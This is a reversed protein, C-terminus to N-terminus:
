EEWFYGLTIIHFIVEVFGFVISMALVILYFMFPLILFGAGVLMFTEIYEIM